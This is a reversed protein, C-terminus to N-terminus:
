LPLQRNKKYHLYIVGRLPQGTTSLQKNALSFPENATIFFKIQAYAPLHANVQQLFHQQQFVLSEPAFVIIAILADLGDGYVICQIIDPSILLEKEIWEPSINRGSSTIIVNKKRGKIYLFGDKDINGLDGTAFFHKNDIKKPAGLYGKFLAGKLLIEGDDAIKISIDDLVKGVSGLSQNILDTKTQISNDPSNLSVVSCAESLGYGEYVPINLSAAQQLVQKAIPAGGLAIFRITQPLQYGQKISYILLLLLQPNIIFATPSVNSLTALLQKVDVQNTGKIGTKQPALITVQAGCFLAIYLGGINELLTSLPLLCLAKDTVQAQCAIALSQMKAVITQNDLIVGKPKGTTGSTYTIKCNVENNKVSYENLYGSDLFLLYITKAAIELTQQKVININLSIIKDKNDTIILELQADKISHNVQQDSFFVPIPVSCKQSFFLALDCIAWAPHNEMYLGIRTADLQAQLYSIQSYLDAYTLVQNDGRIAISNDDAQSYEIIKQQLQNM